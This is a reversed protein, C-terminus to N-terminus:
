VLRMATSCIRSTGRDIANVADYVAGQVMAMGRLQGHATPRLPIVHDQAITNWEILVDTSSPATSRANSAGASSVAPLVLAATLAPILCLAWRRRAGAKSTRSPRRHHDYANSNTM